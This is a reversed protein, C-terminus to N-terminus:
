SCCSRFASDLARRCDVDPEARDRGTRRWLHLRAAAHGASRDLADAHVDRQLLHPVDLLEVQRADREDHPREDQPVLLLRGRVPGHHQRRDARLPHARRHLVHRAPHSRRAALRAHHGTVGGIIFMSIFGVAFLMPTKFSVSGNFMTGIWNFIKVGTPVAILMTSSAFVADAIAGLGVAFMHHAWVGFALFAIAIGSYVMVAYGFLPKRSFVPIIESVIGMAPLILIYVEPHGFVWFLHQWLVPDGGHPVSYFNTEFFRDFMLLILGVTISPFALLLLIMTILSMWCFIPLRM